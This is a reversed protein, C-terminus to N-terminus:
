YGHFIQELKMGLARSIKFVTTVTPRRRGQEIYGIAVRDIGTFESLKEQSYGKKKRADALRKGLDKFFKQEDQPNM